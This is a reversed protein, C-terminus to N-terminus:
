DLLGVDLANVSLEMWCEHGDLRAKATAADKGGPTTPSLTLEVQRDGKIRGYEVDVPAPYGSVRNVLTIDVSVSFRLPEKGGARAVLTCFHARSAPSAGGLDDRQIELNHVELATGEHGALKISGYWLPRPESTHKVSISPLTVKLKRPTYNRSVDIAVASDAARKRLYDYLSKRATHWIFPALKGYDDVPNYPFFVPSFLEHLPRLDFFIGMPSDESGVSYSTVDEESVEIGYSDKWKAGYESSTKVGVGEIVASSEQKLDLQMSHAKTEAKLSFRTEAYDISGQTIAHAYHTGYSTVFDEWQSQSHSGSLLAVTNSIVAKTFGDHLRHSSFDALLVWAEAVKRSVTYRCQTRTQEEVKSSVSGKGGIEMVKDLGASLGLTVSWSRMRETTSSVMDTHAHKWKIGRYTGALGLPLFRADPLDEARVYDMSDERPFAFVLTGNFTQHPNTWVVDARPTGPTTPALEQPGTAYLSMNSPNFGYFPFGIQAMRTAGLFTDGFAKAGDGSMREQQYCLMFTLGEEHEPSTWSFTREIENPKIRQAALLATHAAPDGVSEIYRAGDPAGTPGDAAEYRRLVLSPRLSLQAGKKLLADDAAVEFKVEEVKAEWADSGNWVFRAFEGNDSFVDLVAHSVKGKPSTRVRFYRIPTYTGHPGPKGDHVHGIALAAKDDLVQTHWKYKWLGDLEMPKKAM